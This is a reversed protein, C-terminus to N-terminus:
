TNGRSLTSYHQRHDTGATAFKQLASTTENISSTEYPPGTQGKYCTLCCVFLVKRRQMQKQMIGLAVVMRLSHNRHLYTRDFMSDFRPTLFPSLTQCIAKPLPKLHLLATQRAILRM